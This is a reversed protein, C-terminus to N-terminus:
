SAARAGLIIDCLAETLREIDRLDNLRRNIVFGDYAMMFLNPLVEYDVRGDEPLAANLMTMLRDETWKLLPSPKKQTPDASALAEMLSNALGINEMPMDRWVGLLIARLRERPAKFKLVRKELREFADKQWPEVVAYLLHIKSPFYSYLSSVGVGAREAIEQLTTAHYGHESFLDHASDLIAQRVAKKKVQVVLFESFRFRWRHIRATV